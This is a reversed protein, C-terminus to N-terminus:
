GETKATTYTTTAHEIATYESGCHLCTITIADGVGAGDKYYEWVDNEPAGCYPCIPKITHETDFEDTM